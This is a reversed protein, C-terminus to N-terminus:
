RFSKRDPSALGVRLPADFELKFQAEAQSCLSNSLFDAVKNYDRLIHEFRPTISFSILLDWIENVLSLIAPRGASWSRLDTVSTQSDLELQVRMGRLSPGLLCLAHKTAMLELITSSSAELFGGQPGDATLAADREEKSWAGYLGVNLPFTMAGFGIDSSADSRLLAQWSDRPSFPISITGVGSWSQLFKALWEIVNLAVMTLPVSRAKKNAAKQRLLKFHGVALRLCPAALALFNLTGNIKEMRKTSFTNTRAADAAWKSSQNCFHLRKDAPCTFAMASTDWNWGLANIEPGLQQEHVKVGLDTLTLELQKSRQSFTTDDKPAVLFWNDVFNKAQSSPTSVGMFAFAWQIVATISHFCFESTIHGFPHRLDVYYESTSVTYVFLQLDKTRVFQNRFAKKVDGTYVQANVGAAAIIAMLQTAQLPCDLLLPNWCLDNTSHPKHASFDSVLRFEDSDPDYKFKPAQGLPVYRGQFPCWDNPFPCRAFPGAMRGAAVEEQLRSRIATLKGPDSAMNTAPVHSQRNGVFGADFGVDSVAERAIAAVETVPYFDAMRGFLVKNWGNATSPEKFGAFPPLPDSPPARDPPAGHPTVGRLPALPSARALQLPLAGVKGDSLPITITALTFKKEKRKASKSRLPDGKNFSVVFAKVPILPCFLAGEAPTVERCCPGKFDFHLKAELALREFWTAGDFDRPGDDPAAKCIFLGTAHEAQARRVLVRMQACSGAFVSCVTSLPSHLKGFSTTYACTASVASADHELRRRFFSFIIADMQLVLSTDLFWTPSSPESLTQPAVRSIIAAAPEAKAPLTPQPAVGRTHMASTAPKLAPGRLPNHYGGM